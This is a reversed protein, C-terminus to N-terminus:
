KSFQFSLNLFIRFTNGLLNYFVLVLLMIVLLFKSVAMDNMTTILEKVGDYSGEIKYFKYDKYTKYENVSMQLSPAMLGFVLVLYLPVM